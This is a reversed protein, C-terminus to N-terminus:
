QGLLKTTGPIRVMLRSDERDRFYLRWLLGFVLTSSVVAEVLWHVFVPLTFRRMNCPLYFEPVELLTEEPKDRHFFGFVMVPLFTWLVNYSM